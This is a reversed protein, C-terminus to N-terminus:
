LLALPVRTRPQRPEVTAPPAPQLFDPDPAEGSGPMSSLIKVDAVFRYGRKPVTEIYAQGASGGNLAKRLVSVCRNLNGEEVFSDPWLEKVLTEKEILHGNNEVLITLLNFVKPTLPVPQGDRLLLHEALDLRFPGFMYSPKAVDPM